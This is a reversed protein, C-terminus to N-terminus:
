CLPDGGFDKADRPTGSVAQFRRGAFDASPGCYYGCAESRQGLRLSTDSLEAPIRCDSDGTPVITVSGDARDIRGRVSCNADGSGYAVFGIRDGDLCLRDRGQGAFLRREPEQPAESSCAVLLLFIPAIRM